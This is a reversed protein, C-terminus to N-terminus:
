QMAIQRFGIVAQAFDIQIALQIARFPQLRQL